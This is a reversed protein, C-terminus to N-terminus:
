LGRDPTDRYEKDIANSSEALDYHELELAVIQILSNLASGSLMM